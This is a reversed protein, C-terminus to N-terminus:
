RHDITFTRAYFDKATIEVAITSVDPMASSPAAELSRVNGGIMVPREAQASADLNQTRLKRVESVIDTTIAAKGSAPAKVYRDLLSELDSLRRTSALLYFTESGSNRDLEFWPAGEPIDYRRTLQASAKLDAPFLLDITNDPSRHILYVFGPQEM